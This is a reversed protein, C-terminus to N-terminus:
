DAHVEVAGERHAAVIQRSLLYGVAVALLLYVVTFLWFPAAKYPFSTVAEATRMLGRVVWPQRGWETVLWGAELAVVGLPSAGVLAFLWARGEPIKRRRLTVAVIAVALAAMLSGAAVMVQFAFHVPAIPPWESRPAADLGTVVADRDGFALFSLGGPLEVPGVRLPAHGETQLHAEAAALKLPQARAIHKASRDGSLPQVLAALCAVPLAIGLAKRHLARAGGGRLLFFAHIGVMAWATAQYSSILVHV